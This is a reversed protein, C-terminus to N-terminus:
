KGYIWMKRWENKHSFLVLLHKTQQSSWGNLQCKIVISELFNWLEISFTSYGNHCRGKKNPWIGHALKLQKEDSFQSYSNFHQRIRLLFLQKENRRSIAFNESGDQLLRGPCFFCGAVLMSSRYCKWAIAHLAMWRLIFANDIGNHDFLFKFLFFKTCLLLWNAFFFESKRERWRVTKGKHMMQYGLVYTNRTKWWKTLNQFSNFFCM